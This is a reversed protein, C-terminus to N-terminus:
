DHRRDPAAAMQDKLLKEIAGAALAHAYENPHADFWSVTLKGRPLNRYVPLLDLHPVNLDRWCQNLEDHMFQFEYRPGLAQFFPFTVVALRGGHSEVLNRFAKLRQQQQEWHRGRYGERIYNFYSQM